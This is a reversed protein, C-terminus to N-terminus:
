GNFRKSSRTQQNNSRGNFNGQRKEWTTMAAKWNKIKQGNSQVWGNATYHAHFNEPDISNGRELCLERVQDLTPAVFKTSPPPHTTSPPPHQTANNEASKSFGRRKKPVDKGGKPQTGRVHPDQYDKWNIVTVYDDQKTISGSETARRLMGEVAQATLRYDLAFKKDRMRVRGARGQAKAFCLLCIWALREGHPADDFM